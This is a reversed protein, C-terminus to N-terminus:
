AQRECFELASKPVLGKGNQTSVKQTTTKIFLFAFFRCNILTQPLKGGMTAYFYREPEDCIIGM